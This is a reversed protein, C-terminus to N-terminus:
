PGLPASAARIASPIPYNAPPTPRPPESIPTLREPLPPEATTPHTPPTGPPGSRALLELRSPPVLYDASAVKTPAPAPPPAEAKGEVPKKSVLLPDSPLAHTGSSSKCGALGAAFALATCWRWTRSPRM